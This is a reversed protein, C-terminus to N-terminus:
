QPECGRRRAAKATLPNDRDETLEYPRQSSPRPLRGRLLVMASEKPVGVRGLRSGGARSFAHFSTWDGEGSLADLPSTSTTTNGLPRRIM